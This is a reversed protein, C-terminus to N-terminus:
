DAQDIQRGFKAWCSECYRRTKLSIIDSDKADCHYIDLMVFKGVVLEKCGDCSLM